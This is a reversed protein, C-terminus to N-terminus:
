FYLNEVNLLDEETKTKLIACSSLINTLIDHNRLFLWNLRLFAWKCPM